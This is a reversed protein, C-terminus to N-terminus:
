ENGRNFVRKCLVVTEIEKHCFTCTNTEKIKYRKLQINTTIGHCLIRYQFSRLKSYNTISYIRKVANQIQESTIEQNLNVSWRRAYNELINDKKVVSRYIYNSNKKNENAKDYILKVNELDLERNCSILKAKKCIHILANYTLIKSPTGFKDLLEQADMLNGRNNCLDKVRILGKDFLMKDFVPKNNIRIESNFWIIDEWKLGDETLKEKFEFWSKAADEWIDM